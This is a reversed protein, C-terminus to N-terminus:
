AADPTTDPKAAKAAAVRADVDTSVYQNLPFWVGEHTVGFEYHSGDPTQRVEVGLTDPTKAEDKKPTTM